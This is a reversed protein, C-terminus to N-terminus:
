LNSVMKYIELTEQATKDWSFFKARQIGKKRLENQLTTNSLVQEMAQTIEAVNLPNVLIGADKVIEPISTTNSGIVPTGCAMAEVAPLGFGETLSPLVFVEAGSYLSPLDEEPVENTFIVDKELKLEKVKKFIEEYLGSKKGVIVLNYECNTNNKLEYFAEILRLINKHPELNGVYLIYKRDINYKKQINHLINKDNIPHYKESVGLYIVRIREEPIKLSEIIYNKSHHSISIIFDVKKLTILINHEFKSVWKDPLLNPFRKPGLDYLTVISKGFLQPPFPPITQHFVDVKGMIVEIPLHLKEWLWDELFQARCRFVRNKFNPTELDRIFRYNRPRIFSHLLIYENEKDINALHKVLNYPYVALGGIMQQFVIRRVDIGIRM